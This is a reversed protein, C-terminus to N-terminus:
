LGFRQRTQGLLAELQLALGELRVNDNRIVTDAVQARQDRSAQAAMIKEVAERALGSRAMVRQVQVTSDCDVVWVLDVRKRWHDSEVLLPIDLVVVAADAALAQAQTQAAIMPHLIAELKAKASPDQFVLARMADRHLAGDTGVMTQGFASAIAPLAAGQAATLARSIADADVVAAGLKQLLGAVTSKGSGIGGTLGIVLKRPASAAHVAASL